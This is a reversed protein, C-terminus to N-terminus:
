GNAVHPFGNRLLYDAAGFSRNGSACILLLPRDPPLDRYRALFSGWPLLVAGEARLQVGGNPERVDVLLPARAWGGVSASRAATSSPGVIAWIRTRRVLHTM